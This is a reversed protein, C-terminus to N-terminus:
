TCGEKKLRPTSHCPIVSRIPRDLNMFPYPTASGQRSYYNHGKKDNRDVVRTRVFWAKVSALFFVKEVLWVTSQKEQM